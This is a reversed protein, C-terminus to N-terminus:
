RTIIPLYINMNLRAQSTGIYAHLAEDVWLLQGASLDIVLNSTDIFRTEDFPLFLQICRHFQCIETIKELPTGVAADAFFLGGQASIQNVDLLDEGTVQQVMQRLSPGLTPHALILGVAASAEVSTVPAKVQTVVKIDEVAGTKVNVLQQILEDSAYDYYFVDARRLSPDASKDEDHREAYLFQVDSLGQM